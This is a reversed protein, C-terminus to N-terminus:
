RRAAAIAGSFGAARAPTARSPGSRAPSHARRALENVESPKAESRAGMPRKRPLTKPAAGPENVEGPKAESRAGM